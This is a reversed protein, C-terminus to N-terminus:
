SAGATVMAAMVAHSSAPRGSGVDAASRMRCAARPMASAARRCGLWGPEWYLITMESSPARDPDARQCRPSSKPESSDQHPHGSEDPHQMSRGAQVPREASLPQQRRHALPRHVQGSLRRECCPDREPEDRQEFERAAIMGM